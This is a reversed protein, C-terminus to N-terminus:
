NTTLKINLAWTDVIILLQNNRQYNVRTLLEADVLTYFHWCGTPILRNLKRLKGSCANPQTGNTRLRATEPSKHLRTATAAAPCSTILCPECHPFWRIAPNTSPFDVASGQPKVLLELPNRTPNGNDLIVLWAHSSLNEWRGNRPVLM